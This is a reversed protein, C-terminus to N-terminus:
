SFPFILYRFVYIYTYHTPIWVELNYHLFIVCIKGCLIVGCSHCWLVLDPNMRKWQQVSASLCCSTVPILNVGATGEEACACSIVMQKERPRETKSFVTGEKTAAKQTHCQTSSAFARLTFDNMVITRGFFFFILSPKGFFLSFINEFCSAESTTM